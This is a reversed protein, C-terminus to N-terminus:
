GIAKIAEEAATAADPTYIDASIMDCYNQTVPAGGIMVKIKGSLNESKILEVVKKMEPMTTTLLASCGIIDANNEIATARIFKEASVDVGLDIVTLGKGEMM